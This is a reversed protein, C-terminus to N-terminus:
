SVATATMATLSEFGFATNPQKSAYWRLADSYPSPVAYIMPM